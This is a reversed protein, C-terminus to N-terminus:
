LVSIFISLVVVGTKKRYVSRIRDVCISIFGQDDDEHAYSIFIEYESTM